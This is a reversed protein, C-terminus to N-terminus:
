AVKLEVGRTILSWVEIVESGLSKAETRYNAKNLFSSAFWHSSLVVCFNSDQCPKLKIQQIPIGCQYWLITFPVLNGTHGAKRLLKLRKCTISFKADDVMIHSWHSM